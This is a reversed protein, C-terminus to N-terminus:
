ANIFLTLNFKRIKDTANRSHKKLPKLKEYNTLVNFINRFNHGRERERELLGKRLFKPYAVLYLIGFIQATLM